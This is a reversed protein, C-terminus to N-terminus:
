DVKFNQISKGEMHFYQTKWNRDQFENNNKIHIIDKIVEKRWISHPSIATFLTHELIQVLCIFVANLLAPGRICLLSTVSFVTFFSGCCKKERQNTISQARERRQSLFPSFCVHSNTLCTLKWLFFIMRLFSPLGGGAHSYTLCFDTVMNLIKVFICAYIVDNCFTIGYVLFARGKLKQTILSQSFSFPLCYFHLWFKIKIM